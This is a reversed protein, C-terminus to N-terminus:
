VYPGVRERCSARGISAVARRDEVDIKRYTITHIHGFRQLLRALEICLSLCCTKVLRCQIVRSTPTEAVSGEFIALLVTVDHDLLDSSCVDSSWDSIRM